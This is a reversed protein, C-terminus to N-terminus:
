IRLTIITLEEQASEPARRVSTFVNVSAAAVHRGSQSSPSPATWPVGGDSRDSISKRAAAELSHTKPPLLSNPPVDLRGILALRTWRTITQLMARPDNQTPIPRRTTVHERACEIVTTLPTM